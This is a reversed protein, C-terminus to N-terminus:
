CLHVPVDSITVLLKGSATTPIEDVVQITLEVPEDGLVLRCRARVLEVVNDDFSEGKELTVLIRDKSHQHVQLRKVALTDKLALHRFVGGYLLKGSPLTFISTVRGVIDRMLPLGRGCACVRDDPVAVDGVRFRLLPMGYAYLPTTIVEGPEGYAVPKGDALFEVYCFDEFIHRSGAPCEAAVISGSEHSGYRDSVPCDFVRAILEREHPWLQMATTEISKPRIGTIGHREVYQAFLHIVNTYGAILDPKWRALMEAFAGMSEPTPRFGDFWREQKIQNILRERLTQPIEERRGWFWAVKDGFEWGFWRRSRAFAAVNAAQYTFDHYTVFPEGTSGSTVVRHMQSRSVTDAILADTNRRIDDKTLLPLQGYDQSTQIDQPTIGLAAFQQHYYPVHAYAHEILAKLKRWAVAQVKEQSLWQDCEFAREIQRAQPWHPQLIRFFRYLYNPM